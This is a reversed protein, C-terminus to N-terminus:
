TASPASCTPCLVGGQGSRIEESYRWGSNFLIQPEYGSLDDCRNCGDCIIYYAATEQIESEIYALHEANTLDDASPQATETSPIASDQAANVTM